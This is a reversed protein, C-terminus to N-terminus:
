QVIASRSGVQGSSVQGRDGRLREPTAGLIRLAGLAAGLEVGADSDAGSAQQNIADGTLVCVGNADPLFASEMPTRYSRLSWQRGTLVCVGNADPLFASEMPTRYSRLSWQRGTLVCVGNADPLFASEM